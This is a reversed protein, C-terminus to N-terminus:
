RLSYTSPFRFAQTRIEALPLIGPKAKTIELYIITSAQTTLGYAVTTFSFAYPEVLISGPTLPNSDVLAIEGRDAPSVERLEGLAEGPIM